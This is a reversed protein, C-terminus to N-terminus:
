WSWSWWWWCWWWGAVCWGVLVALLGAWGVAFFAGCAELDPDFDLLAELFQTSGYNAALMAATFGEVDRENVKLTGSLVMSRLKRMVEPKNDEAAAWM